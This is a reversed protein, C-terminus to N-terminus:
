QKDYSLYTKWLIFLLLGTLGFGTEKCIKELEKYLPVPMRLTLQKKEM